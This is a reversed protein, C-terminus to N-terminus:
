TPLLSVTLCSRSSPTQCFPGSLCCRGCPSQYFMGELVQDEQYGGTFKSYFPVWPLFIKRSSYSLVIIPVQQWSPVDDGQRQAPFNVLAGSRQGKAMVLGVFCTTPFYPSGQFVVRQGVFLSVKDSRPTDQTDCFAAVVFEM